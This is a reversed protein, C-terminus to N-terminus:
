AELFPKVVGTLNVVLARGKVTPEVFPVAPPVVVVRHANSTWCARCKTVRAARPRWSRRATVVARRLQTIRQYERSEGRLPRLDDVSIILPASKTPPTARGAVHVVDVPGLLRDLSPGLRSALAPDVATAARM